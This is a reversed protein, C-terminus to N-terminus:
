CDADGVLQSWRNDLKLHGWRLLFEAYDRSNLRRGHSALYDAVELQIPAILEIHYYVQDLGRDYERRAVHWAMGM